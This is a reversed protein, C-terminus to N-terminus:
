LTHKDTGIILSNEEKKEGKLEIVETQRPTETHTDTHM